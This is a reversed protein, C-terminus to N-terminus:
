QRRPGLRLPVLCAGGLPSPVEPDASPGPHSHQQTTARPDFAKACKRENRPLTAWRQPHWSSYWPQEAHRSTCVSGCWEVITVAACCYNSCQLASTLVQKALRSYLLVFRLAKRGITSPSYAFFFSGAAPPPSSGGSFSFYVWRGTGKAVM